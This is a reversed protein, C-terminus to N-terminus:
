LVNWPIGQCCPRVLFCSQRCYMGHYGRVVLDLWFVLSSVTREMTDRVVLDLGFVLSGVTCEM